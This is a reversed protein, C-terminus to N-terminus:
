DNAYGQYYNDVAEASIKEFTQDYNELNSVPLNSGLSSSTVNSKLERQFGWVVKDPLDNQFVKALDKFDPSAGDDYRARDLAAAFLEAKTANQWSGGYSQLMRQNAESMITSLQSEIQNDSYGQGRLRNTRMEVYENRIQSPKVMLSSNYAEKLRRQLEADKLQSPNKFLKDYWYAGEGGQYPRTRIKNGAADRIVVYLKGDEGKEINPNLKLNQRNVKGELYKLHEASADAAEAFEYRMQTEAKARLEAKSLSSNEPRAKLENVKFEIYSEKGLARALEARRKYDIEQTVQRTIEKLKQQNAPLKQSDAAFVLARKYEEEISKLQSKHASLARQYARRSNFDALVPQRAKKAELRQRIKAAKQYQSSQEEYRQQIQKRKASPLDWLRTKALSTGVIASQIAANAILSKTGEAVLSTDKYTQKLDEIKDEYYQWAKSGPEYKKQLMINYKIQNQLEKKDVAAYGAGTAFAFPNSIVANSIMGAKDTTGFLKSSAIKAWDTQSGLKAAAGGLIGSVGALVLAKKEDQRFNDWTYKEKEIRDLEEIYAVLQEEQEPTRNEINSLTEIRIKLLKEKEDYNYYHDYWLNTVAGKTANVVTRGLFTVAGAKAATKVITKTTVPGIAQAIGATAISFPALAGNIAAAITVNKWIKDKTAKEEDPLFSNKRHEYALTTLGAATAGVAVSGVVIWALPCVVAASFAMVALTPIFAKGITWALQEFRSMERKQAEEVNEYVEEAESVEETEVTSEVSTSVALPNDTDVEVDNETFPTAAYLSSRFLESTGPAAGIVAFILIIAAFRRLLVKGPFVSKSM